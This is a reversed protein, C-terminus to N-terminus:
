NATNFVLNPVPYETAWAVEENRGHALLDNRSILGEADRVGKTWAYGVSSTALADIGMGNVIRASNADFPNPMLFAGGKEHLARFAARRDKATQM